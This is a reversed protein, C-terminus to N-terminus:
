LGPVIVENDKDELQIMCKVMGLYILNLTDLDLDICTTPKFQYQKTATNFYITGLLISYKICLYSDDTIQKFDMGISTEDKNSIVIRRTKM